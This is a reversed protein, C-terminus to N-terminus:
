LCFFHRIFYAATCAKIYIGCNSVFQVKLQILSGYITRCFNEILDCHFLRLNIHCQQYADQFLSQYIRDHCKSNINCVFDQIKRIQRYIATERHSCRDCCCQDASIYVRQQCQWDTKQEPSYDSCQCAKDM